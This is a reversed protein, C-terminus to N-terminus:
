TTLKPDALMHRSLVLGKNYQFKFLTIGKEDPGGNSMLKTEFQIELFNKM